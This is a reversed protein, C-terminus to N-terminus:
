RTISTNGNKDILDINTNNFASCTKLDNAIRLKVRQQGQEISKILKKVDTIHLNFQTPSDGKVHNALAIAMRSYISPIIAEKYEKTNTNVKNIRYGTILDEDKLTNFSDKDQSNTKYRLNLIEQLDYGTIQSTLKLALTLATKVDESNTEDFSKITFIDLADISNKFSLRILGIKTKPVYLDKLFEQSLDISTQNFDKRGKHSTLSAGVAIIALALTSIREKGITTDAISNKKRLKSKAKEVAEPDCKISKAEFTPLFSSHKVSGVVGKVLDLLKM